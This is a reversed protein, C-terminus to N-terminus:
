MDLMDWQEGLVWRLASLKGRVMGWEYDSRVMLNEKGYEQEKQRLALLWGRDNERRPRLLGDYGYAPENLMSSVCEYWARDCFEKGAELVEPLSRSPMFYFEAEAGLERLRREEPSEDYDEADARRDEPLNFSVGRLTPRMSWGDALLTQAVAQFQGMRGVLDALLDGGEKRWGDKEVFTFELV